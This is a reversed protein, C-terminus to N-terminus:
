KFCIVGVEIVRLMGEAYIMEMYRKYGGLLSVLWGMLEEGRRILM